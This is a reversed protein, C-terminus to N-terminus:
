RAPFPVNETANLPDCNQIYIQIGIGIQIYIQIPFLPLMIPAYHDTELLMFSYCLPRNGSCLLSLGLAALAQGGGPPPGLQGPLDHLVVQAYYACQLPQRGCAHLFRPSASTSRLPNADQSGRAIRGKPYGHESSSGQFWNYAGAPANRANHGTLRPTVGPM